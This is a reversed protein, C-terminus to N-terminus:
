TWIHDCERCVHFSVEVYSGSWNVWLPTGELNDDLSQGAEEDDDDVITEPDYQQGEVIIATDGFDCRADFYVVKESGCKPCKTLNEDM